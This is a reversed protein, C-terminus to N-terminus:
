IEKEFNELEKKLELLTVNFYNIKDDNYYDEWLSRKNKYNKFVNQFQNFYQKIYSYDMYILYNKYISNRFSFKPKSPLIRTLDSFIENIYKSYKMMIEVKISSFVVDYYEDKEILDLLM